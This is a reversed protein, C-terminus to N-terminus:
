VEERFQVRIDEFVDNTGMDITIDNSGQAITATITGQTVTTTGSYEVGNIILTIYESGDFEFSNSFIIQGASTCKLGDTKNFSGSTIIGSTYPFVSTLSTNSNPYREFNHSYLPLRALTNFFEGLESNSKKTDYVIIPLIRGSGNWHVIKGVTLHKDKAFLPIGTFTSNVVNTGDLVIDYKNVGISYAIVYIRNLIVPFNYDASTTLWSTGTGVDAHIKGANTGWKMDFTHQEPTGDRTGFIERENATSEDLMAIAIVIYANINAFNTNAISIYNKNTAVFRRSLFYGSARMAGHITGDNGTLSLDKLTTTDIKETGIALVADSADIVNDLDHQYSHEYSNPM